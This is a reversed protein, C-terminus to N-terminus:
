EKAEGTSLLALIATDADAYDTPWPCPHGRRQGLATAVKERVGEGVSSSPAVAIMAAYLKKIDWVTMNAPTVDVGAELMPVDPERPVLVLETM